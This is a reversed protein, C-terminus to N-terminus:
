QGEVVQKLRVLSKAIVKPNKALAGTIELWKKSRSPRGDFIERVLTGGGECPTLQYRWEWKMLHRWAIERDEEFSVVENTIRYPFGVKMAMGFKAGKYLRKPGKLVRQITRSGDVLAHKEPDALLDFIKRPSAAIEIEAALVLPDGTDLITARPKEASM